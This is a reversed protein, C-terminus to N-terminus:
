KKIVLLIEVRRAFPDNAKTAKNSGQFDTQLRNSQIGQQMLYNKVNNARKQSLRFNVDPNGSKDTYGTIITNLEPHLLMLSAIKQLKNEYEIGFTSKGVNFYVNTAEYGRIVEKLDISKPKPTPIVVKPTPKNKLANLEKTLAELQEQLMKDSSSDEKKVTKLSEELAALRQNLANVEAEKKALTAAQKLELAKAISDVKSQIAVESSINDVVNNPQKELVVSEVVKTEVKKVPIVNIGTDKEIVPLSSNVLPTDIAVADIELEEKVTEITKNPQDVRSENILKLPNRKPRKAKKVEKKLQTVKIELAKIKAQSEQQNAQANQYAKKYNSNSLELQTKLYAMERAMEETATAIAQNEPKSFDDNASVAINNNYEQYNKFFIQMSDLQSQLAAIEIENQDSKTIAANYKQQLQALELRSTEVEALLETSALNANEIYLTDTKKTTPNSITPQDEIESDDIKIVMGEMDKANITDLTLKPAEMKPFDIVVKQMTDLAPSGDLNIVEIDNTVIEKEKEITIHPTEIPNEIGQTTDIPLKEIEEITIPNEIEVSQIVTDKIIEVDNTVTTIIEKKVIKKITDPTNIVIIDEDEAIRLGGSEATAVNTKTIATDAQTPMKDLSADKTFFVPPLFTSTKYGFNYYVGLSLYGYIDKLGEPNGRFADASNNPNSAYNQFNDTSNTIYKDSVDDLYDTLTYVAQAELNINIRDSVRFKLGVGIPFSLTTNGYEVGETQVDRLNTEFVGDQEIITPAVPPLTMEPRDRITLDSWYYYREDGSYLLDAYPTFRTLGIGFNFYPTIRTKSGFLAENDTYYNFSFFVNSIDTQVNLSRNTNPTLQVAGDWDIVRDTAQFRGRNASLRWGWAKSFNNEINIGYSVHDLNNTIDLWPSQINIIQTSLDGYYTMAGGTVGVRWGYNDQQSFATAAFLFLLLFSLINKM